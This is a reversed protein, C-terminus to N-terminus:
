GRAPAVADIRRWGVGRQRYPHARELPLGAAMSVEAHPWAPAIMAATAVDAVASGLARVTARSSRQDASPLTGQHRVSSADATDHM